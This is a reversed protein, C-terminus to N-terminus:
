EWEITGPPKSTIDYVVRNVGPVENVIRSSITALVAPDLHTWDATMFDTTDVARVAVCNQGHYTRGDGMVGVSSVPLLVGFAQSIKRYWGAAAIEETIIRDARRLLEVRERTVEGLIRVALGPGPFPHRWILEDPLGLLEGVQRAEDKFMDRLPEVLEFGLEAPLGGVNHHLKIGAATGAESVGSEIVDPYLTGQALFRAGPISRAEERFVEIFEHGIRRRKEQPDVVDALRALFRDGADVVRLDLRFHGRFAAEVRDREDARLLGNDVFICTLREGVARACLAATVSSDVGGSLGCIVRADAPVRRQIDDVAREAMSDPRWTAKCGCVDFLFNRLIQGGHPTHTVEPHFQVGWFSRKVHRVVAAPCHPTAAVLAFDDSLETVVDGHSMWVSTEAPVHALLRDAHVITLATRGFERCTSPSVRAGLLECGVQMGYCIGLVPLGMELLAADCRPAGAEYTSAPGGSLIIGVVGHARLQEPTARPSFIRSHVHNERVRRAILQCYQSGFDLVAITPEM